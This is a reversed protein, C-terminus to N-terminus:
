FLDKTIVCSLDKTEITYRGADAVNYMMDGRMNRAFMMAGAGSPYMDGDPIVTAVLVLSLLSSCSNM